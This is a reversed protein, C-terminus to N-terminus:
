DVGLHPKHWQIHIGTEQATAAFESAVGVGPICVLAEGVYLLPLRDRLWPEIAQEQLIKKLSKDPRGVLRCSEGGQRYRVQLQNAFSRNLGAGDVPQAELSGNELLEIHAAEEIKWCTKQTGEVASFNRLAYLRDRYRSLQFGEGQVTAGTVSHATLVENSLQQLRNWGLDPLHLGSLWYRLVNRRRAQHLELLATLKVVGPQETRIMAFDLQALEQLLSEAEGALTATKSWSERYGPWREEILPLLQHRCYNRDFDTDRNSSDELWQLQQQQAYQALDGRDFDLLPRFLFGAGVARSLPIGALGKVGAGRMMRLLITEMQDDRHHAMLLAEGSQLVAEFVQYRADRAANELSSSNGRDVEVVSCSLEIGLQECSRECHQQWSEAEEQLGHNVHVARLEFDLRSQRRLQDLSHLLVMSDMGGSLALVASNCRPMRQLVSALIDLSFKM